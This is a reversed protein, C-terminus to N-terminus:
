LCRCHAAQTTVPRGSHPSRSPMSRSVPTSKRRKFRDLGFCSRFHPFIQLAERASASCSRCRPDATSAPGSGLLCSSCALSVRFSRVEMLINTKKLGGALLPSIPERIQFDMPGNKVQVIVNDEFKGVPVCALSYTVISGFHM